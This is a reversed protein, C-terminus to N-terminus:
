YAGDRGFVVWVTRLLIYVDLWLSQHRAYYTDLAVRRRYTTNNRGKVQWLGTLGPTVTLYHRVKCGYKKLEDSVVPRPGVLSMEGRFVNWLQPLEDLSTKRLFRGVATIRPDDKLKRDRAWERRAAPDRALVEKLVRDSDPVMTRFKLCDFPIGGRGIRSHRYIVPGGERWMAGVVVLLVPSLLMGFLLAGFIDLTRKLLDWVPKRPL